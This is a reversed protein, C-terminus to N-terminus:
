ASKFRKERGSTVKGDGEKLVLGGKSLEGVYDDLIDLGRGLDSIFAFHAVDNVGSYTFECVVDRLVRKM